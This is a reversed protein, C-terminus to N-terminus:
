QEIFQAIGFIQDYDPNYIVASRYQQFDLDINLDYNQRGINGKLVGLDLAENEFDEGGEPNLETSLYLHLNLNPGNTVTFDGELGSDIRLFAVEASQDLTVIRFIQVRGRANHIADIPPSFVGQKVLIIEPSDSSGIRTRLSEAVEAPELDRVEFNNDPDMAAQQAIAHEPNREYIEKLVECEAETVYAACEFTITDGQDILYPQVEPLWSPSALSLVALIACM